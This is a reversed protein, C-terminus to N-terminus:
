ARTPHAKSFGPRTSSKWAWPLTKPVPNDKFTAELGFWEIIRHNLLLPAIIGMTNIFHVIIYVIIYIIRFVTSICIKKM